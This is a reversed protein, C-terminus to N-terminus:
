WEAIRCSLATTLADFFSIRTKSPSCFSVGEDQNLRQVIEFIEEVIMPALGMSPEDLLTLKPRSMLGRGIAAMQQEGGSLLGAKAHRRAKIRPFIDYIRGLDGKLERGSPRRAFGGSLLNEEV